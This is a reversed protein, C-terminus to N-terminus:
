SDNLGWMSGGIGRCGREVSESDFDAAREEEKLSFGGAEKGGGRYKTNYSIEAWIEM